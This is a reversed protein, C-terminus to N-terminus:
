HSIKWKYGFRNMKNEKRDLSNWAPLAIIRWEKLHGTKEIIQWEKFPGIKENFGKDNYIVSWAFLINYLACKFIDSNVGLFSAANYGPSVQRSNWVQM